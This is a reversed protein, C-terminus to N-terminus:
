GKHLYVRAAVDPSSVFSMAQITDELNIRSFISAYDLLDINRMRAKLARDCCQDVRDLSRLFAGALARNLSDFLLPDYQQQLVATSLGQLVREAAREPTATEGGLMLCAFTRDCNYEVFFSENILGESYLTQYLPSAEGLLSDFFVQGAMEHLSRAGGDLPTQSNIRPNKLAIAFGENEVDDFITAEAVRVTDPEPQMIPRGGGTVAMQSILDALMDLIDRIEPESFDGAIALSLASPQYFAAAVAKLDAEKINLVTEPSGWLDALNPQHYANSMATKYLRNYPNDAYMDIECLIIDRVAAIKTLSIQPNCVAQFYQRLALAFNDVCSFYFVTAAYDTYANAEVGLASLEQKLGWGSEPQRGFVTYEMFHATGAPVRILEAPSDSGTFSPEPAAAYFTQDMAGCPVGLYACRKHFGPKLIVALSFGSPHRYSYMMNHSLSDKKENRIFGHYVSM